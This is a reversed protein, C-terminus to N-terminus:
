QRETGAGPADQELRESAALQAVGPEPEHAPGAGNATEVTVLTGARYGAIIEEIDDRELVENSLLREAFANLLPRNETILKQARRWAM